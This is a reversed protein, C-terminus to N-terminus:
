CDLCQAAYTVLASAEDAEISLPTAAGVFYVLGPRLEHSEGSAPLRLVGCGEAALLIQPGAVAALAERQAPALATRVVAFEDIPPDYVVSAPGGHAYAHPRLLKADPAGYDYTLMDVLVPVDRLKPTLGARVVNDSTAMCEVCDGFVYAHPDNPGMFFADGPALRLVNLLFVCFVGVDGPYEASLRHVLAGESVDLADAGAPVRAVLAELQGRVSEADACMLESFLARLAARKEADGLGDRVAAVLAPASARVLAALEPVAALFGAIQELPRFGSLAVFDTLAISMEPKHNGDRYADPRTAHLVRALAKDPHAQISLAKEISLVKFLFPLQGAYKRAVGAGLLRPADRAIASALAEGTGYVLSPGSAHTGMWLEAYTQAADIAVGPNTAAFQAAKSQLGHKGWHYNNVSCALRIVTM